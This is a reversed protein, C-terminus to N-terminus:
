RQPRRRRYEGVPHGDRLHGHVIVTDDDNLSSAEPAPSVSVAGWSRRVWFADLNARMQALAPLAPADAVASHVAEFTSEVARRALNVPLKWTKAEAVLDDATVARIDTKGNIVHGTGHFREALFMVPACDYLPALSVEGRRGILLSYNKSHADGNGIGINFVM